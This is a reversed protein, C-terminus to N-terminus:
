MNKYDRGIGFKDEVLELLSSMPFAHNAMSSRSAM